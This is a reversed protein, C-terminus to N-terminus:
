WEPKELEELERLTSDVVTLRHFESSVYRSNHRAKPFAGTTKEGCQPCLKVEARHATVVIRMEPIDFVQREEYGTAETDALPAQCHSCRAAAHTETREPYASAQLTHGAHGPQGGNPKKGAQRLSQTRKAKSYGDSSPPKGSNRSNKALCAQLAQLAEGQQALQRALEEVQVAVQRFLARVAAEGKEFASHIDPDTPM